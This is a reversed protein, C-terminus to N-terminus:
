TFKSLGSKGYDSRSPQSKNLTLSLVCFMDLSATVEINKAGIDINFYM